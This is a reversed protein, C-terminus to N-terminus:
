EKLLRRLSHVEMMQALLREKEWDDSTERFVKELVLLREALISKLKIETDRVGKVAGKGFVRSDRPSSTPYLKTYYNCLKEDEEDTM